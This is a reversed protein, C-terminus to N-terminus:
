EASEEESSSIEAEEEAITEDSLTEPAEEVEPTVVEETEDM